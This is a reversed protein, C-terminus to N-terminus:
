ITRIHLDKIIPTLSEDDANRSMKVKIIYPVAATSLDKNDYILEFITDKALYNLIVQQDDIAFYGHNMLSVNYFLSEKTTKIMPSLEARVYQEAVFNSKGVLFYNPVEDPLLDTRKSVDGIHVLIQIENWGTVLKLTVEENVSVLRQQNCYVSYSGLRKKIEKNTIGVLEIGLPMQRDTASNICITYRYFNDKTQGLPLSNSKMFFDTDILNAKERYLTDWQANLPIEGDFTVYTKERRWQHIGRYLKANMFDSFTSVGKNDPTFISSGDNKLIKYARVSNIIEGTEIVKRGSVNVLEIDNISISKSATAKKDNVDDVKHWIQFEKDQDPNFCVEFELKTGSRNNKTSEISLQKSNAPLALKKSYLTGEPEYSKKYIAINKAGFYYLYGQGNIDDYQNKKIRIKLYKMKTTKFSWKIPETVKQNSVTSIPNFTDNDLSYELSVNMESTHHPTFDLTNIETLEDFTVIIEAEMRNNSNIEKTIVKIWWATNISDDFAYSIPEITSVSTHSQLVKVEVNQEKVSIRKSQISREKLTAQRNTIDVDIDTRIIDIDSLDNFTIVDEHIYNKDAYKSLILLKDLENSIEDIDFRIRERIIDGQTFNKMLQNHQEISANYVDTIDEEIASTQENFDDSNTIDKKFVKKSKFTPTGPLHSEVWISLENTISKLQPYTGKFLYKKVIAETKKALQNNRIIM